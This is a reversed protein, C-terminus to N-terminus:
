IGMKVISSWVGNKLLETSLTKVFSDSSLIFFTLRHIDDSGVGLISSLRKVYVDFGKVEEGAILSGIVGNVGLLVVINVDSVMYSIMATGSYGYVLSSTGSHLEAVFQTRSKDGLLPAGQVSWPSPLLYLAELLAPKGVNSRGIVVNFRRFEIERSLKRIGRFEKVYISKVLRAM